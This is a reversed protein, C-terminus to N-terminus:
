LGNPDEDSEDLANSEAAPAAAKKAAVPKPAAAVLRANAIHQQLALKIEDFQDEGWFAARKDREIPEVGLDEYIFKGPINLGLSQQIQPLTIKPM